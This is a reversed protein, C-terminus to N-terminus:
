ALQLSTTLVIEAVNANESGESTQGLLNEFGHTAFIGLTDM